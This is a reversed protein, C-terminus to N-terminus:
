LRAAQFLHELAKQLHPPDQSSAMERISHMSLMPNGVDVARLGLETAIIPGVTSGCPMDSRSVFEQLPVNADQCLGRFVAMAESDTAYKWQHHTKLAPGQGLVPRHEGDHKDPYNPHVGHAMDTSAMFSRPVTRSLAQRTGGALRTLVDRLFSSAAGRNTRSGIEEHDFLAVVATAECGLDDTTLLAAVAPHCSGLNDLRPAHIFEGTLGSVTPPQIDHLCLEFGLVAEATVDLEAALFTRIDPLAEPSDGSLAWIPPLHDQANLCLGDKNVGRNLHIALSPIRCIPRNVSILRTEIRRDASRTSM